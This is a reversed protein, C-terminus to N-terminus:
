SPTISGVLRYGRKERRDGIAALKSLADAYSGAPERKTGGNAAGRTGWVRTVTWGDWLDRQIHAEYYRTDKEWRRRIWEQTAM